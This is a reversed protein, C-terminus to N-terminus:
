CPASVRKISGSGRGAQDRCETLGKAVGGEGVYRNLDHSGNDNSQSKRLGDSAAGVLFSVSVSIGGNPLITNNPVVDGPSLRASRDHLRRQATDNGNASLRKGVYSFFDIELDSNKMHM